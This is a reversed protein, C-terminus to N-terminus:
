TKDKWLKMIGIPESDSKDMDEFTSAFDVSVGSAAANLATNLKNIKQVESALREYEPSEKGYSIMVAGVAANFQMTENTCMWHNRTVSMAQKLRNIIGDIKDLEFVAESMAINMTTDLTNM